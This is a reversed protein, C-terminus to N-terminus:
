GLNASAGWVCRGDPLAIKSFGNTASGQVVSVQRGNAGMAVVSAGSSPGSRLKYSYGSAAGSIVQTSRPGSCDGSAREDTGSKKETTAPARTTPPAVPITTVATPAEAPFTSRPVLMMQADSVLDLKALIEGVPKRAARAKRHSAFPGLVVAASAGDAVFPPLSADVIGVRGFKTLGERGGLQTADTESGNRELLLAWSLQMRGDADAACTTTPQKPADIMQGALDRVLAAEHVVMTDGQSDTLTVMGMVRGRGDVFPAGRHGPGSRGAAAAKVASMPIWGEGVPGIVRAALLDSGGDSTAPSGVVAGWSDADPRSEAWGLSRDLATDIEIVALDPLASTGIVKGQVWDGSGLHLWPEPDVGNAPNRGDEALGSAVTVLHHEDVAFATSTGIGGDCRRAVVSAVAPDTTSVLRDADFPVASNGSMRPLTAAPAQLGDTTTPTTSPTTSSVVPDNSSSEPNVTAQRRSPESRGASDSRLATEPAGSCGALAVVVAVAAITGRTGFAKIVAAPTSARM